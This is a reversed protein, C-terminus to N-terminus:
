RRCRPTGWRARGDGRQGQCRGSVLARQPLRQLVQRVPRHFGRSPLAALRLRRAQRDPDGRGLRRRLPDRRLDARAHGRRGLTSEVAPLLRRDLAGEGARGTGHERSRDSPLYGGGSGAHRERVLGGHAPVHRAGRPRRRDPVIRGSLQAAMGVQIGQELAKYVVGYAKLHNTQTEDM